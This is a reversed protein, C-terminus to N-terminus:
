CVAGATQAQVMNQYLPCSQLLTGHDGIAKVTGQELMVIRDAMEITSMRHAIVVITKEQRLDALAELVREESEPDLNSTFEDLLLCERDLLIARAIAIQQKQGGSFNDGFGEVPADLGQPLKSIFRDARARRCADELEQDSVKRDIGYTLNDRLTGNMLRVDQPVYSFLARWDALRLGAADKGAYTIRGAAPPYFRELLTLATTKGAGNEGAIATLKGSPITFSVNRLVSKEGYSFSVNEFAFEGNCPAISAGSILDEKEASIIASLHHLKGHCSKIEKWYYPIMRVSSGMMRYYMFYAIWSGIDIRGASVLRGGLIVVTLAGALNVLSTLYHFANGIMQAWFASHNYDHIARKGRQAERDESSFFKVLSINSMIEAILETLEALKKQAKESFKFTCRGAIIATLLQAILLVVLTVMMSQDYESSAAITGVVLYIQQLLSPIHSSLMASINATDSTVRSILEKTNEQEVRSVPLETIAKWASLEMGRSMRASTIGRIFTSAASLVMSGLIVVVFTRITEGSVDGNIVQETYDPFMLYVYSYGFSIALTLILWGWPLKAKRFLLFFTTWASDRWGGGNRATKVSKM